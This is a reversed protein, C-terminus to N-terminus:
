SDYKITGQFDSLNTVRSPLKYKPPFDPVQKTTLRGDLIIGYDKETDLNWTEQDTNMAIVSPERCTTHGVVQKGVINSANFEM